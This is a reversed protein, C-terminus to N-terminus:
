LLGPADEKAKLSKAIHLGPASLASFILVLWVQAFPDIGLSGMAFGVTSAMTNQMMCNAFAGVAKEGPFMDGFIAKNTSEYVGRGMGQLVYFVCIGWGWGGPGKGDPATVFSLLAILIFCCSGIVLVPMKSGTRDSIGAYLKSSVTAVLCIMASLSGIFNASHLAEKQWKANIYGNLYAAAFGFAFNNCSVLWLKPDKWLKLAAFTRTFIGARPPPVRPKADPAVALGVTAVFALVGYSLFGIIDSVGALQMCTFMVKWFCEQGLYFLAFTSSLETTIDGLPRSEASALEACIVSFFAGQGTWLTGAGMGGVVSGGVGLVYAGTSGQEFNTVVAFCIVYVCYCLMGFLLTGKSGFTNSALPGLLLSSLMCVGYLTANAANGAAAGLSSSAYGVPTTVAAHNLGFCISMAYFCNRWHRPGPNGNQNEMLPVVSGM